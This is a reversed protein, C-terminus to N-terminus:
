DATPSSFGWVASRIGAQVRWTGLGVRATPHQRKSHEIKARGTIYYDDGHKYLTGGELTRVHHTQRIVLANEAVEVAGNPIRAVPVFAVDGNRFISDLDEEDCRWIRTLALRVGAAPDAGVVRGSARIEVPHAFVTGLENYGCLYYDKRVQNFRRPHFICQRVQILALRRAADYSYISTNIASGRQKKDSEIGTQWAGARELAILLDSIWAPINVIEGFRGRKTYQQSSHTATSVNVIEM